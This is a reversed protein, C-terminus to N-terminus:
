ALTDTSRPTRDRTRHRLWAGLAATVLTVVILVTFAGEAPLLIAAALLIVGTAIDIAAQVKPSVAWVYRKPTHLNGRSSLRLLSLGFVSFLVGLSGVIYRVWV